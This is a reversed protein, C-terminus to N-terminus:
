GRFRGSLCPRASVCDLLAKRRARETRRSMMAARAQSRLIVGLNCWAEAYAPLLEVARQYSATAADLRGNESHVVGQNYFAAAYTPCVVVAELYRAM